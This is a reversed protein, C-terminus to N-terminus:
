SNGKVTISHGIPLGTMYCVEHTNETVVGSLQSGEGIDVLPAKVVVKNNAEITIKDETSNWEVYQGAKDEIRIKEKGGNDDFVIKHGSKTELVRVDKGADKPRADVDSYWFGLWVPRNIDGAEFMLWVGDGAQPEKAGETVPTPMFFWGHGGGGFPACYSAWNTEDSGGLLEHVKAKIRGLGDPDNVNTVVGRYIGFFRNKLGELKEDKLKEYIDM